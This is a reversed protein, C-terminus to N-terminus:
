GVVDVGCGVLSIWFEFWFLISAGCGSSYVHSLLPLGFSEFRHAVPFISLFSSLFESAHRTKAGQSHLVM